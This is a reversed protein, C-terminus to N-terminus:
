GRAEAPFPSTVRSRRDKPASAQHLSATPHAVQRVVWRGAAARWMDPRFAPPHREARHVHRPLAPFQSLRRCPRAPHVLAVPSMLALSRHHRWPRKPCAGPITIRPRTTTDRCPLQPTTSSGSPRDMGSCSHTVQLHTRPHPSHTTSPRSPSSPAPPPHLSRPRPLASRPALLPRQLSTTMRTTALNLGAILHAIMSSV